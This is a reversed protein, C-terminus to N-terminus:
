DLFRKSKIMAIKECAQSKTISETDIGHKQLFFIQKSTLEQNERKEKNLLAIIKRIVKAAESKTIGPKYENQQMLFKRQSNTAPRESTMWKSDLMAYNFKPSSRAYNECIELACELPLNVKVFPVVGGTKSYLNIIYGDDDNSPVLVLENGSDDMLSYQQDIKIWIFQAPSLTKSFVEQDDLTQSCHIKERLNKNM